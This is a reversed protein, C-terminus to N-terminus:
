APARIPLSGPTQKDAASCYQAGAIDSWTSKTCSPMTQEQNRPIAIQSCRWIAKRLLLPMPCVAAGRRNLASTRMINWVGHRPAHANGAGRGLSTPLQTEIFGARRTLVADPHALIRPAKLKAFEPDGGIPMPEGLYIRAPGAGDREIWIEHAHATAPLCLVLAAFLLYRM